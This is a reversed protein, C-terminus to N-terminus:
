SVLYEEFPISQAIAIDRYRTYKAIDPQDLLERGIQSGDPRYLMSVVRQEDFMWFDEDPLGPNDRETLDFIKIEEGARANFAYAWEFEYRLYETLPRTVVHVRQITRGTKRFHAVRDLWSYHHDTPPKEGALFRQFEDEEDPMAYVPLTELRFASREYGDFFQRWADGVLRM